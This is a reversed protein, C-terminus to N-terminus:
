LSCTVSTVSHCRFLAKRPPLCHSIGTYENSIIWQFSFLCLVCSHNLESIFLPHVCCAGACCCGAPVDSIKSKHLFILLKLSLTLRHCSTSM